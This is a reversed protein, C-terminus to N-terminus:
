KVTMRFLVGEDHAGGSNTTGYLTKNGLFAVRAYPHAGDTGKFAHLVTETNSHPNFRFVTGLDSASGGNITTGYLRGKKVVLGGVPFSGDSRGCCVGKFSYLLSYEGSFPDIKFITGLGDSGGYTTTGYLIGGCEVLTGEPNAGDGNGAFPHIVYTDGDPEIATVTGLNYAGGDATTVYVNQRADKSFSNPTAYPNAGFDADFDHVVAYSYGHEYGGFKFITGDDNADGGGRTTGYFYEDTMNRGLGGTPERGDGSQSGQFDYM